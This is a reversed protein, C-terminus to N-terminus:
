DSFQLSLPTKLNVLYAVPSTVTVNKHAPHLITLASGCLKVHDLHLKSVSFEVIISITNGIFRDYRFHETICQTSIYQLPPVAETSAATEFKRGILDYM